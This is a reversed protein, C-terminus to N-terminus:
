RSEERLKMWLRGLQNHGLWGAPTCRMGWFLGSESPRASVDEILVASGTEHLAARLVPHDRLKAHLVAEMNVLDEASRPQIQMHARERKAIMKAGMPSTAALIDFFQYSGWVFRHAQFMAEATRWTVSDHHPHTEQIAHRSMNGLWGYPLAVRTFSITEEQFGVTLM